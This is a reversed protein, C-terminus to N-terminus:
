QVSRASLKRLLDPLSKKVSAKGAEVLPRRASFDAIGADTDVNVIFDAQAMQQELSQQVLVWQIFEPSRNDKMFGSMQGLVNVYIVFQPAQARFHQMLGLLQTPDGISGKFPTMLPPFAMCYPLLSKYAGKQMVYANRKELNYSPCAFNWTSAEVKDGDFLRHLIAEAGQADKVKQGGLLSRDFVDEEKLKMMQWEPDFPQAKRAALGAVLSGWELGGVSSVPIKARILEQIVGAHAFARMGGPGFIVTVKLPGKRTEPEGLAPAEVPAGTSPTELSPPQGPAPTETPAPTPSSPGGPITHTTRVSNTQCGAFYIASCFFFVFSLSKPM